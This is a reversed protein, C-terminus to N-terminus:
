GQRQSDLYGQLILVAALGDRLNKRKKRSIDAQVLVREAESTTLREDFLIVPVNCGRELEDAFGQVARAMEGYSGDMNLPLGLVIRGIEKERVFSALFKVDEALTTRIRVPLPSALIEDEDSLALGLRKTGYDIGLIRM